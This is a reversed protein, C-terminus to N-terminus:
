YASIARYRRDGQVCPPLPKAKQPERRQPQRARHVLYSSSNRFLAHRLPLRTEIKIAPFLQRVALHLNMHRNMRSRERPVNLAPWSRHPFGGFGPWIANTVLKGFRTVHRKGVQAGFDNCWINAASLEQAISLSGSDKAIHLRTERRNSLPMGHCVVFEITSRLAGAVQM